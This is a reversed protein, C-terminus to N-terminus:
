KAGRRERQRATAPPAIAAITAEITALYPGVAVRPEWAQQLIFGQFLAIMARAAADADLGAPVSGRRQGDRLVAALLRRPRAIGARAVACLRPDRLAEAWLQVGVRRRQREAADALPALFARAIAHLAAATDDGADAAAAAILAAERAHREAAIADIIAAKSPFYRYIAGPSLRAARVIDDMTTRHFGERAFCAGAADLIQQRRADRHAESVKPM